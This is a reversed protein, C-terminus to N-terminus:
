PALGIVGAVLVAAGGLLSLVIVLRRALVADVHRAVREGVVAGALLPVAAVIWAWWPWAPAASPELVTRMVVTLTSLLVWFPQLTAAFVRHDWRTVIGLIGATSAGVGVSSNLLGSAAGLTIRTVPGDIVRATRTFGASVIVGLIAFVGVGIKLADTDVAISILIGPVTLLLAPLLIWLLRRWDVDRWTRTLIFSCVVIGYVNGLLVAELPGIALVATPVVILGYGMGVTRQAIAGIVLAACVVVFPLVEVSELM